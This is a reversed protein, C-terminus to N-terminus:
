MVLPEIQMFNMKYHILIRLKEYYKISIKSKSSIQDIMNILITCLSSKNINKM